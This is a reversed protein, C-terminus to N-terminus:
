RSRLVSEKRREDAGMEEAGPEALRARVQGVGVQEPAIVRVRFLGPKPDFGIEADDRGQRDRGVELESDIALDVEVERGSSRARAGVEHLEEMVAQVLGGGGRVPRAVETRGCEKGLRGLERGSERGGGPGLRPRQGPAGARRRCSPDPYCSSSRLLLLFLATLRIAPHMTTPSRWAKPSEPPARPTSSTPSIM